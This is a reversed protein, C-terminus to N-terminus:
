HGPDAETHEPTASEDRILNLTRLLPSMTLGQVFISFTVVAFATVVIADRNPIHAALSLALALALAGRLGGWVLVHQYSTPVALSSRKFLAALPYVAIIRGILVMVVAAVATWLVFSQFVHAEGSGILIFVLSNVVFAAYDWFALVHGRGQRSIAGRWGINGVVLGATLCALVGSMHFHEAALFSGYAVITTLTIEVLHDETRGAIALLAAAIGGGVVMGGIITWALSGLAHLPAPSSGGAIGVLLTFGVAAVGDNLLSEAEVLLSLRPQVKLEKFAAIVSVPDTAAILVGFIASGIWTWGVLIHMGAAVVTATILVGFIALALVVPLNQRLAPWRIQLAAEFVLPPLFGNYILESSLARDIDLPSFALAIGAVVLGVTYPVGVRRTAIAVISAVLLILGLSVVSLQPM